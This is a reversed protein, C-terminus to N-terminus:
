HHLTLFFCLSIFLAISATHYSSFRTCGESTTFFVPVLINFPGKFSRLQHDQRGEWIQLHVFASFVFSMFQKLHKCEQERESCCKHMQSVPRGYGCDGPDCFASLGNALGRGSFM